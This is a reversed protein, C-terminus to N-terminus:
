GDDLTPSMGTTVHQSHASGERKGRAFSSEQFGIHKKFSPPCPPFCSTRQFPRALQPSLSSCIRDQAPLALFVNQPLGRRPFSPSDAGDRYQPRGLTPHLLPIITATGSQHWYLEQPWDRGQVYYKELFIPRDLPPIALKGREGFQRLSTSAGGRAIKHCETQQGTPITAFKAGHLFPVLLKMKFLCNYNHSYDSESDSTKHGDQISVAKGELMEIGDKRLWISAM